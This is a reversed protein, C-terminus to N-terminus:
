AKSAKLSRGHLSYTGPSAVNQWYDFETDVLFARLFSPQDAVLRVWADAQPLLGVGGEIRVNAFRAPSLGCTFNTRVSIFRVQEQAEGCLEYTECLYELTVREREHEELEM